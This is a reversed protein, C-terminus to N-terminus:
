EIRLVFAPQFTCGYRSEEDLPLNVHLHPVGRLHPFGHRTVGGIM